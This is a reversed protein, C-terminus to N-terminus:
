KVIVIVEESFPSKKGKHGIARVKYKYAGKTKIKKDIFETHNKVLRAIQQIPESNISLYVVVAKIEAEPLLWSLRINSGKFAGNFNKFKPLYPKRIEANIPLAFDSEKAFDSYAKLTVMYKGEELVLNLNTINPDSITKHLKWQKTGSQKIFVKYGSVLPHSSKRWALSIKQDDSNIDSIIPTQLKFDHFRNVELIKSSESENLNKDVATVKYYINKNLATTSISDLYYNQEALKGTLISFEHTSDNSFFVNYGKLDPAKVADWRLLMWGTSDTKGILNNPIPPPTNDRLAAYYVQSVSMNGARDVAIIHYYNKSSYDPNNDFFSKTTTSLLKKHTLTFPGHLNTARGVWFGALDSVEPMEWKISVGKGKDGIADIITPHESLTKDLGEGGTPKSPPSWEGFATIGILRYFYKKNNQGLIDYYSLEYSSNNEEKFIVTPTKSLLKYNGNKSESREILFGSFEDEFLTLDVRLHLLHDQEEIFFTPLTAPPNYEVCNVYAYLTDVESIDKANNTIPFIKYQYDKGIQVKNDSYRLGLGDAAIPSYDASLMAYSHRVEQETALNLADASLSNNFTTNLKSGYSMQAAISAYKIKIDDTNEGKIQVQWQEESWVKVSDIMLSNPTGNTTREIIFGADYKKWVGYDLPIWRLVISNGFSKSIVVFKPAETQAMMVSCLAFLIFVVSIIKKNKM